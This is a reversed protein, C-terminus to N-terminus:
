AAVSVRAAPDGLLTYARADKVTLFVKSRYDPDAGPGAERLEEAEAAVNAYWSTLHEMAAGVRRGGALARVLSSFHTTYPAKQALAYSQFSALFALDVHGVVALAGQALM